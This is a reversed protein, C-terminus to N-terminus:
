FPTKVNEIKQISKRIKRITVFKGKIYYGISGGCYRQKLERGTKCNFCRGDKSWKYKQDPTYEWVL